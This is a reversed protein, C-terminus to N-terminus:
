ALHTVVPGRLDSGQPGMFNSPVGTLTINSAQSAAPHEWAPAGAALGGGPVPPLPRLQPDVLLPPVPPHEPADDAVPRVGVSAPLSAVGAALGPALVSAVEPTSSLVV